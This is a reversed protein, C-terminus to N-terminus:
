TLNPTFTLNVTVVSDCGAISTLTETGSPNTENYTTGGIVVSYGSGACATDNFTGFVTNNITLNLVDVSDCGAVNTLTLTYIGSVNYQNGNWIYPLADSCVTDVLITTASTDSITIMVPQSLACGLPSFSITYAGPLSASPIIEGSDFDIILGNPLATYGGNGTWTNTPFENNSTVCFTDSVYSFTETTQTDINLFTFGNNTCGNLTVSFTYQGSNLTTVDTLIPDELTSSFGNPGTWLYTAGPVNTGSLQVDAGECPPIIPGAGLAQPAPNVVITFTATTACQGIDPTFLYSATQTSDIDPSWLGSINNNSNTLLDPISSGSCYPGVPTFTPIILIDSSLNLTAISDCGNQATLTATYTGASSCILGNWFFPLETICISTDTTSVNDNLVLLHLTATSDCGAATIINVSQTDTATFTLGNWIYPLVSSCITDYLLSVPADEVTLNITIISDCGNSNTLTDNYTGSIAVSNGDPLTYNNGSCIQVNIVTDVPLGVYSLNVNLTSTCSAADTVTVSYTGESLNGIDQVTSGTSWLYQFPTDADTVTLDISGTGADCTDPNTIQSLQPPSQGNLTISNVGVCGLSDTLTLTYTGTVLNNINESTAGNSWIFTVPDISFFIFANISGPTVCTPAIPLFIMQPNSVEIIVSDTGSCGNGDTVTVTYTTTTAPSVKITQTTASNSWLYTGSVPSASLITSDGLCIKKNTVDISTTIDPHIFVPFTGTGTCGSCLDTVTLTYTTSVTPCATVSPSNVSNLGAAPSWSYAYANQPPQINVSWSNITGTSVFSSNVVALRWLGNIPSGNMNNFNQGVPISYTNSFPAPGAFAAGTAAFCTNVLNAGGVPPNSLLTVQVGNPAQLILQLQNVAPFDINVCVSLISGPQITGCVTNQNLQATTLGNGFFMPGTYTFSSPGTSVTNFLNVCGGSCISDYTNPVIQLANVFVNITQSATCGQASIATVTYDTTAPPSAVVNTGTTTNLGTSPTWSYSVANGSTSLNISQGACVSAIAPSVPNINPLSNVTIVQTTQANCGAVGQGILTYTTTANPSATVTTATSSSLSANPIWQYSNANSAPGVSLTANQGSCIASTPADISITPKVRVNLTTSNTCGAANTGTITYTTPVVPNVNVTAGVVASLGAAPSWNYTSAGSATVNAAPSVCLSAPNTTINPIPNVAVNVTYSASTCGNLTYSVTYTGPVAPNRTPNQQNSNWGGPGSWSYTAGPIDTVSLQLAQNACLPSNYTPTVDPLQVGATGGFSLSFQSNPFYSWQNVLLYYTGVGLTPASVWGNGGVDESIDLATTNMGTNGINAAYSCRIPVGLNSCGGVIPGFLSFDYDVLNPAPNITMTLSGPTTVHLTYWNSFNEALACGSICVDSTLGPGQSNANIVATTNCLPQANICDNNQNSTPGSNSCPVCSIIAEWGPFNVSANSQFRVTLCGSPNNATIVPPLTNGCGSWLIPSNQTPGNLITLEDDVCFPGFSQVSFQTFTLQVCNGPANPCFTRYTGNVGNSYDSGNAGLNDDTYIGVCTNVMCSGLYTGQIGTTPHTYVQATLKLSILM